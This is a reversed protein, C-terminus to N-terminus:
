CGDAAMLLLRFGGSAVPLWRFGDSAVLLEGWPSGVKGSAHFEIGRQDDGWSWKTGSVKAAAPSGAKEKESVQLVREGRRKSLHPSPQPAFALGGADKRGHALM